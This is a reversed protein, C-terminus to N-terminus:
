NSCTVPVSQKTALNTLVGTQSNYLDIELSFNKGYAGEYWNSGKQVMLTQVQTNELIQNESTVTLLSPETHNEILTATYLLDKTMCTAALSISGFSLVPILLLFKKM